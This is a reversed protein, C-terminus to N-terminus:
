IVEENGETHLSHIRDVLPSHKIDHHTSGAFLRRGLIEKDCGFHTKTDKQASLISSPLFSQITYSFFISRSIIKLLIFNKYKNKWNGAAASDETRQHSSLGTRECRDKCAEGSDTSRSPMSWVTNASFLGLTFGGSWASDSVWWIHSQAAWFRLSYM